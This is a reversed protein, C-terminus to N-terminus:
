VEKRGALEITMDAENETGSSPRVLPDAPDETPQPILVVGDSTKKMLPDESKTNEADHSEMDVEETKAMETRYETKTESM